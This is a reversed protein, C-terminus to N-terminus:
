EEDILHERLEAEGHRQWSKNEEDALVASLQEFVGVIERHGTRLYDLALRKARRKRQWARYAAIPSCM